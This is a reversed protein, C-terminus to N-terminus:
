QNVVCKKKTKNPLKQLYSTLPRVVKTVHTTAKLIQETLSTANKQVDCIAKKRLTKDTGMYQM